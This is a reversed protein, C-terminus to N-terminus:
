QVERAVKLIQLLNLGKDLGGVSNVFAVAKRIDGLGVTSGSSTDEAVRAKAKSPAPEEVMTVTEEIVESGVAATTTETQEESPKRTTKKAM